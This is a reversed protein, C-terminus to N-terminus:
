SNLRENHTQISERLAALLEDESAGHLASEHELVITMGLRILTNITMRRREGSPTLRNEIKLRSVIASGADYQHLYLQGEIRVTPESTMLKPGRKKGTKPPGSPTGDPASETHRGNTFDGQNDQDFSGQDHHDDHEPHHQQDPHYDSM